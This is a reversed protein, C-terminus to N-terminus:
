VVEIADKNYDEPLILDGFGVITMLNEWSVSYYGKRYKKRSYKYYQDHSDCIFVNKDNYGYIVVAHEDWDGKIDNPKNNVDSKPFKFFLHWNFSALVPKGKNIFERIYKGFNYDIKINNDYDLKNLWRLTYKAYDRYDPDIKGKAENLKEILKKRSLRSWSFDFLNLNCSVVTVKNFGMYNLLTGMEGTELGEEKVVPEKVVHKYVFDKTIEYDVDRNYYNVVTSCSAVACHAPDQIFRKVKLKKM